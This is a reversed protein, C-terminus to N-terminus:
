QTSSSCSMRDCSVVSANCCDSATLCPGGLGACAVQGVSACTGNECFGSCCEFGNTCAGNGADVSLEGGISPTPVCAALAWFGRMNPTDEQGELYIAPHSPDTAGISSDVATVWLRRKGNVPTSATVEAPWPQNGWRRMSTFVAWSYGGRPEPNFTPEVSANRDAANPPDSAAAMRIPTGGALTAVFLNGDDPTTDVCPTAAAPDCGTSYMGSHFALADGAPSFSPYALGRGTTAFAAVSGDVVTHLTPGFSPGTPNFDLYAIRESAGAGAAGNPAEAIVNDAAFQALVVALKTGDPAFAPMMMGTGPDLAVQDLGSTAVVSGTATRALSLYKSGAIPSGITSGGTDVSTPGGFVVYTGDPTLALDAGFKTTEMSPLIGADATSATLDFAAWPRTGSWNGYPGTSPDTKAGLDDIDAVLVTGQANVAHCGMCKGNDLPQPAAGTGPQFRSIHGRRVGEADQSATWYYIAGRLSQPAVSWTETATAYATSSAHDWRALGFALPDAGATTDTSATIRDWAGQDLRLQGPLSALTYYGDFAYDKEAYHLLYVDGAQPANWMVLPSTLGLPWVTKDYPYLLPRINSAPDAPLNNASLAIVAPSTASLGPGYDVVKVVVTLTATAEKGQYVAHLTGTGGYLTSTSPATAVVPVADVVTALEPRDFAVSDALVTRDSGSADTVELTFSATKPGTGDITVTLASPEFHLTLDGAANGGGLIESADSGGGAPGAGAAGPRSPRGCAAGWVGMAFGLGFLGARFLIWRLQM